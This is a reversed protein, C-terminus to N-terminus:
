CPHTWHMQMSGHRCHDCYKEVWGWKEVQEPQLLFSVLNSLNLWEDLLKNYEPGIVDMLTEDVWHLYAEWMSLLEKKMYAKVQIFSPQCTKWGIFLAIFKLEKETM